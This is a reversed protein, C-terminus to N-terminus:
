FDANLYHLIHQTFTDFDQLEARIGEYIMRDDVEWYLHVLLNRLGALAQMTGAFAGPLIGTESLVKFVDKYDKPARLRETAIIHNAINICTEISVQLYFRASGILTPNVLFVTEEQAVIEQLYGTYTYLHHLLNELKDRDVM